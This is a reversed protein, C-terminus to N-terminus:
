ALLLMYQTTGRPSETYSTHSEHNSEGYIDIAELLLLEEDAQVMCAVVDPCQSTSGQLAAATHRALSVIQEVQPWLAGWGARGGCSNVTVQM